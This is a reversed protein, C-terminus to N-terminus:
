TFFATEQRRDDQKSPIIASVFGSRKMVQTANVVAMIATKAAM